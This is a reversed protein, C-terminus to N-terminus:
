VMPAPPTLVLAVRFGLFDFRDGPDRRGRFASRCGRGSGSNAWGGGRLSRYPGQDAGAPDTLPGDPYTADYLDHCWEWVNGHMDYLGWANPPYSGVACTRGLVPGVKNTGYPASGDSNAQLGNLQDGFHFAGTYLGGRCAYEWETETPLRYVRGAAVEEALSSLKKCFAQTDDWSAREVPFSSTDLGEVDEKNEATSCFASPNTGMVAEYQAQTVTFVGLWYHRTLTVRHRKEDSDRGDELEPSGMWFTGAPILAFRMGISNVVEPVCPVVGSAILERVRTEAARRPNGKRMKLVRRHLRLLEARDPQGQEELCDAVALWLVDDGPTQHLCSLLQDLQM